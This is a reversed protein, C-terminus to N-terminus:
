LLNKLIYNIKELPIQGPATENRAPAYILDSGFLPAVVRTFRGIDGMAISCIPKKLEKKVEQTVDLLNLCDKLSNAKVALKAIDGTELLSELDNRLEDKKGARDMKHLSVIVPLGEEQARQLVRDRLDGQTRYEIDVADVFDILKCLLDVRKNESGRFDGGESERRVTLIVPVGPVFNSLGRRLEPDFPDDLLDVRLELLDVRGLDLNEGVDVLKGVDREGVSAVVRPSDGVDVGGVDVLDKASVRM